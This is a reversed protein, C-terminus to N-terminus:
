YSFHETEFISVILAFICCYYYYNNNNKIKMKAGHM